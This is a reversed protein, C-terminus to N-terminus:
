TVTPSERPGRLIVHPNARLVMACDRLDHAEFKIYTKTDDYQKSSLRLCMWTVSDNAITLFDDERERHAYSRIDTTVLHKSFFAEGARKGTLLENAPLKRIEYEIDEFFCEPEFEIDLPLMAIRNLDADYGWVFLIENKDNVFVHKKAKMRATFAKVRTTIASLFTRPNM